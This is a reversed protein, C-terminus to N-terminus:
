DAEAIAADDMLELVKHAYDPDTAYGARALSRVFRTADPANALAAAYRPQSRLLEVYDAFSEAYSGYARFRARQPQPLGHVYELATVGVSPGQWYSGAKINFLNNSSCGAHDALISQGWGTELASQAILVRHDVGLARAARRADPLLASVFSEKGGFLGEAIRRQARRAVPELLRMANGLVVPLGTKPAAPAKEIRRAALQAEDSAAVGTTAGTAPSVGFQRQLQRALLDGLGIGRGATLSVALQRDLLEQRFQMEGTNLPNDDAFVGNAARMGSLMQSVFFSEFQRAAAQLAAARDTRGLASISQLGSVDTWAAPNAVAAGM